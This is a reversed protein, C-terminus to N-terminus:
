SMQRYTPDFSVASNDQAGEGVRGDAEATTDDEVFAQGSGLSKLPLSQM